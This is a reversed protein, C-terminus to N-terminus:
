KTWKKMNIRLCKHCVPLSGSKKDRSIYFEKEDKKM